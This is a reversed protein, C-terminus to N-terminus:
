YNDRYLPGQFYDDELDYGESALVDLANSLVLARKMRVDRHSAPRAFKFSSQSYDQWNRSKRGLLVERQERSAESVLRESRVLLDYHPPDKTQVVVPKSWSLQRSRVVPAVQVVYLKGPTLSRVEFAHVSGPVSMEM